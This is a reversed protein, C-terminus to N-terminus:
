LKHLGIDINDETMEHRMTSNEMMENIEEDSKGRDHLEQMVNPGLMQRCWSIFHSSLPTSIRALYYRWYLNRHKERLHRIFKALEVKKDWPGLELRVRRTEVVLALLRSAIKNNLKDVGFM